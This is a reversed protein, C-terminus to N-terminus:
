QADHWGPNDIHIVIPVFVPNTSSGRNEWIVGREKLGQPRMPLKGDKMMYTDPDEQEGAFVDLDGDGDFDAVGLSHFSGTGEVDGPAVPPDELQHRKWSQGKGLNEVWYVHSYGTDCDSYIIDNQQDGGIDTVWTRASTGYSGKPILVHPWSHQKWDGYGNGPNEFWVGPLVTDNDGDGDLDGFGRPAVGGHFDFGECIIVKKLHKSVDFWAAGIDAIIDQIGDGNIDAAVIDHKGGEYSHPPWPADPKEALNGPNQFWVRNMAVDIWGDQNIDLAAAGLCNDLTQSSGMTHREWQADTIREFWYATKVTRRSLAMDLDGDGDFDALVPGSTGWKEGPLPQAITFHTWKSVDAHLIPPSILWITLSSTFLLKHSLKM